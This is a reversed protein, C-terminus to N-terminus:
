ATRRAALIRRVERRVRDPENILRRYSFRVVLIGLTALAADRRLDAERRTRDDHWAAGDLEFDVKERDAFVDLYYARRGVTVRVQRQLSVEGLDTFVEAVGFIELYSQCGQALLDLLERLRAREPLRRARGLEAAVREVTTMRDGIAKMVVGVREDQPLLPWADVLAAELTTVWHGGRRMVWPPEMAFGTRDHVVLLESSTLRRGRPATLHVPEDAAASRLGWIQLASTHSVAARGDAYAAAALIPDVPTGTAAYVEPHLRALRGARVANFVAWRPTGPTLRSLVILGGSRSLEARLREDVPDHHV